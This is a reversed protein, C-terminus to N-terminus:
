TSALKAFRDADVQDPGAALMYGRGQTVVPGDGLVKRLNSVYVQLTKAATAPAREGWVAEILRDATVVEGRNLLLAVLVTQQKRGGLALPEHDVAEFPGLIRFDLM